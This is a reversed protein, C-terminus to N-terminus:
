KLSNAQQTYKFIYGSDHIQTESDFLADNHGMQAVYDVSAVVIDMSPSNNNRRINIKLTEKM